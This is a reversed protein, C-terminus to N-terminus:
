KLCTLLFAIGKSTRFFFVGIIKSIFIKEYHDERALIAHFYVVGVGIMELVTIDTSKTAVGDEICNGTDAINEGVGLYSFGRQVDQWQM